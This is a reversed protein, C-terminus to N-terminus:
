PTPCKITQEESNTARELQIRYYVGESTGEFALMAANFYTPQSAITAKEATPLRRSSMLGRSITIGFWIMSLVLPM